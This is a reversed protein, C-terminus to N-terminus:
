APRRAIFASRAWEPADNWKPCAPNDKFHQEAWWEEFEEQEPEASTEARKLSVPKKRKRIPRDAKLMWEVFSRASGLRLGHDKRYKHEARLEESVNHGPFFPELRKILDVDDNAAAAARAAAKFNGPRARAVVDDDNSSSIREENTGLERLSRRCKFPAPNGAGKAMILRFVKVQSTTGRREGTDHIKADQSLATTQTRVTDRHLGTERSITEASPWTFGNRDAHMAFAILVLRRPASLGEQEYAWRVAATNIPGSVKALAKRLEANEKEIEVKEKELEDIKGPPVREEIITLKKLILDSKDVPHGACLEEFLIEAQARATFTKVSREKAGVPYWTVVSQGRKNPPYLKPERM